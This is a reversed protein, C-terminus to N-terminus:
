IKHELFINLTVSLLQNACTQVNTTFWVFSHIIQYVAYQDLCFLVPGNTLHMTTGVLGDYWMMCVPNYANPKEVVFILLYARYNALHVCTLYIKVPMGM